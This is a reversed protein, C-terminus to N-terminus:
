LAPNLTAANRSAPMNARSLHPLIWGQYCYTGLGKLAEIILTGRKVGLHLPIGKCPVGLLTGGRGYIVTIGGSSSWFCRDWFYGSLRFSPLAFIRAEDRSEMQLKRINPEESCVKCVMCPVGLFPAECSKM